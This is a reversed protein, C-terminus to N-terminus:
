GVSTHNASGWALSTLEKDDMRSAGDALNSYSPVRAFWSRLQHDAECTVFESIFASALSTEGTGRIYAMSASENDIYWVTQSRQLGKCWVQLAMLVPVTELEHIPNKSDRFFRVALEKPAKESFFELVDGYPSNLVGGVSGSGEEPSCAGDTFVIWTDNLCRHVKIPGAQLVRSALFHLCRRLSADLKGIHNGQTIHRGLQKIAENAVRGFTYGEFFVM